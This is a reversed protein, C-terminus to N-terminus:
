NFADFPDKEEINDDGRAKDEKGFASFPDNELNVPTVETEFSDFGGDNFDNESTDMGLVGDDDEGDVNLLEVEGIDNNSNWFDDIEM